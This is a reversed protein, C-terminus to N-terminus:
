AGSALAAERAALAFATRGTHSILIVADGRDLRSVVCAFELSGSWRADLGADALLLAGLEAVHQSSGTGVLWM